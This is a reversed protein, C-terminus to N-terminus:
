AKKQGSSAEMFLSPNYLIEAGENQGDTMKTYISESSYDVKCEMTSKEMDGDIQENMTLTFTHGSADMVRDYMEEIISEPSQGHALFLM